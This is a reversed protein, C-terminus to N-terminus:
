SWTCTCIFDFLVGKELWNVPWQDPTHYPHERSEFSMNHKLPAAVVSLFGTAFKATLSIEFFIFIKLEQDAM